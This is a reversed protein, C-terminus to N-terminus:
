QSTLKRRRNTVALVSRGVRRAVEEDPLKGLLRDSESTWRINPWIQLRSDLQYLLRPYLFIPHGFRGPNGKVWQALLEATLPPAPAACRAVLKELAHSLKPGGSRRVIDAAEDMVQRIFERTRNLRNGVEALTVIRDAKAGFRLQVAKASFAPLQALGKNLAALLESPSLGPASRSPVDFEGTAARRVIALLETLTKRGCAKVNLFDPPNLGQLDGLRALNQKELVHRLRVSIPLESFSAAKAAAPIVIPEVNPDRMQSLDGKRANTQVQLVLKRLEARTKPGFNRFEAFSSIARGHLDGLKNVGATELMNKLRVSVTLLRLPLSKADRPIDIRDSVRRDFNNLRPQTM